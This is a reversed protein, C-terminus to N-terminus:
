EDEINEISVLEFDGNNNKDLFTIKKNLDEYYWIEYPKSKAIHRHKEIQAPEGYLILTKGRETKWGEKFRLSYQQISKQVRSYFEFQVENLPTEPSDDKEKWYKNFWVELEENSFDEVAEYEESSLLYIMPRLALDYKYLYIPKDYWVVKFTDQLTTKSNSHSLDYRLLYEGEEISSNDIEEIYTKFRKEPVISFNKNYVLVNNEEEIKYLELYIKLSDTEESAYEIMVFPSSNIEVIDQLSSIKVNESLEYEKEIFVLDSHKIIVSAQDLIEIKRKSYFNNGTHADRLEVLLKYKGSGQDLNFEKRSNQYLKKSNTEHFDDIHVTEYWSETFLTQEENYDKINISIEYKAKYGANVKKFQLIDNQIELSFILKTGELYSIFTNYFIEPRSIVEFGYRSM